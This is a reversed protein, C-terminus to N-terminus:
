YFACPLHGEPSSIRPVTFYQGVKLCTLTSIKANWLCPCPSLPWGWLHHLPPSIWLSLSSLPALVSGPISGSSHVSQAAHLGHLSCGALSLDNLCTPSGAKCPDLSSLFQLFSLALSQLLFILILIYGNPSGTLLLTMWVFPCCSSQKPHFVTILPYPTASHIWLKSCHWFISPCDGNM